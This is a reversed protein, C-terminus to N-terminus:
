LPISQTTDHEPIHYLMQREGKVIVNENRFKKKEQGSLKKSVNMRSSEKSPVSFFTITHGMPEVKTTSGRGKTCM